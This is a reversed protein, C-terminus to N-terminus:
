RGVVVTRKEMMKWIKTGKVEFRGHDVIYNVIKNGERMSYYTAVIDMGKEERLKGSCKLEEETVGYSPLQQVLHKKFFHKLSQWSHGPCICAKEIVKWIENGGSLFYVGQKLFFHLLRLSESQQFRFIM